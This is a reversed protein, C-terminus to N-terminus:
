WPSVQLIGRPTFIVRFYAIEQNDNNSPPQQLTSLPTERSYTFATQNIPEYDLLTGDKNAKLRFILSRDFTPKTQWNKNIKEYIKQTLDDLLPRDSIELNKNATPTQWPNIYLEGKPTFIVKYQAIPETNSNSGTVPIYLLDPLPTKKDNNNAIANVGKYGIIAGKQDVSIRYILEEDFNPNKQWKEFIQESLKKKLSDLQNTDTIETASSLTTDLNSNKTTTPTPSTTTTPTPTPTSTKNDPSPSISPQESNTQAGSEAPKQVQPVPLLFCAIAAVTLSSFGIVIPAARKVIPQSSAIDRRSIPQLNLSLNPLTQTDALLQDIAEVLDFLQVTTLDIIIPNPAIAPSLSSPKNQNFEANNSPQSVSLRHQHLGIKKIHILENGNLPHPHNVGSLFEQAYSNVAQVLNHIFEQGGCLPEKAASLTCEANVLISLVQRDSGIGVNTHDSLGELTLTCNPLSYQRRITM